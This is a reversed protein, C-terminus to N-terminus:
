CLILLSNSRQWHVYKGATCPLISGSEGDGWQDGISGARVRVDNGSGGNRTDTPLCEERVYVPQLWSSWNAASLKVRMFYGYANERVSASGTDEKHPPM